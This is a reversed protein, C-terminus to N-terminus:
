IKKKSPIVNNHWHTFPSQECDCVLGSPAYPLSMSKFSWANKIEACFSCYSGASVDKVRSFIRKYGIPLHTPTVLSRVVIVQDRTPIRLLTPWIASSGIVCGKTDCQSNNVAPYISAADLATSM